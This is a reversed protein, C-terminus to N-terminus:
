PKEILVDHIVKRTYRDVVGQKISAISSDHTVNAMMRSLSVCLTYSRIRGEGCQIYVLGNDRNAEVFEVVRGVQKETLAYKKEQEDLHDGPFFDLQLLPRTDKGPISYGHSYRDSISILPAKYDITQLADKGINTIRVTNM